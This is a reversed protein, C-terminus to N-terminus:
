ILQSLTLFIATAHNVETFEKNQLREQLQVTVFTKGALPEKINHCMNHQIKM